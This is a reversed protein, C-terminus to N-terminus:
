RFEMIVIICHKHWDIENSLCFVITDILIPIRGIARKMFASLFTVMAGLACYLPSNLMNNWYEFKYKQKSM